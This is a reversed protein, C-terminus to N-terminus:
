RASPGRAAHHRRHLREERARDALGDVQRVLGRDLVDLLDVDLGPLEAELRDREVAVAALQALREGGRRLLGLLGGRRGRRRGLQAAAAQRLRRWPKVCSARM